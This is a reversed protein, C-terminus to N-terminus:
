SLRVPMVVAVKGGALLLMPSVEDKVHITIKDDGWSNIIEAIYVGNLGINFTGMDMPSRATIQEKGTGVSVNAANMLLGTSTFEMKITPSKQTAEAVVLLRGLANSLESRTVEFEGGFGKDIKPIVQVYNPFTGEVLKADHTFTLGTNETRFRLLNRAENITVVANADQPIGGLLITAAHTPLILVNEVKTAIDVALPTRILRRGDTAVVALNKTDLALGNLIYRTEDTSAAKITEGLVRVLEKAGVEFLKEGNMQRAPPWESEPIGMIETRNELDSIVLKSGIVESMLFESGCRAVFKSLVAHPVALVHAGNTEAQTETIVYNSLDTAHVALKGDHFDLLVCSLVPMSRNGAVVRAAAALQRQFVKRNVKFLGHSIAPEVTQPIETQEPPADDFPVVNDAVTETAVVEIAESEAVPVVPTEVATKAAIIAEILVTSKTGHPKSIGAEIAVEILAKRPMNALAQSLEPHITNTNM